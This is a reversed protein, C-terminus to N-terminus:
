LYSQATKMRIVRLAWCCPEDCGELKPESPYGTPAQCIPCMSGQQVERCGPVVELLDDLM